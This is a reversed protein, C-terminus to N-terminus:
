LGLNQTLIIGDPVTVYAYTDTGEVQILYGGAVLDFSYDGNTETIARSTDSLDALNVAIVTRGSIGLERSDLIGNDNSDAYVKGSIGTTIVPEPGPMMIDDIMNQLMTLVDNISVIHTEVNTIRNEFEDLKVTLPDRIPNTYQPADVFNIASIRAECKPYEVREYSLLTVFLDTFEPQLNPSITLSYPRDRKRDQEDFGIIELTISRLTLFNNNTILVSTATRGSDYTIFCDSVEVIVNQFILPPVSQAHAQQIIDISPYEMGAKGNYTDVAHFGLGITILLITGYLITKQAKIQGFIQHSSPNIKM